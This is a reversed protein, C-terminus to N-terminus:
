NIVFEEGFKAQHAKCYEDYFKQNSCPALKNHLEECLDFDMYHEAVEWCIRNGGEDTVYESQTDTNM